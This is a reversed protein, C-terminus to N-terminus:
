AHFPAPAAPMPAALWGDQWARAAPTDGDFPNDIATRGDGRASWGLAYAVLALGSPPGDVVPAFSQIRPM